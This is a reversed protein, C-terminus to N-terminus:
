CTSFYQVMKFLILIKIESNILYFLSNWLDPVLPLPSENIKDVKGSRFWIIGLGFKFNDHENVRKQFKLIENNNEKM